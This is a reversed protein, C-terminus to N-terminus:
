PLLMDKIISRCGNSYRQYHGNIIEELVYPIRRLRSEPLGARVNLHKINEDIDRMLNENKMLGTYSSLHSLTSVWINALMSFYARTDNRSQLLRESLKIHKIGSCQSPHQRYNNLEEPLAAIDKIEGALFPIWGDYAWFRPIPLLLERLEARIAM